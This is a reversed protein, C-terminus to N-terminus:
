IDVRVSGSQHLQLWLLLQRLQSVTRHTTEIAIRLDVLEHVCTGVSSAVPREHENIVILFQVIIM